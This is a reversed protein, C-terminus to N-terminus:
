KKDWLVPVSYTGFTDGALEYLERITKAGYFPEPEIDTVLNEGFGNPNAVPTKSDGFGWGTHEDQGPKTKRWTPHM